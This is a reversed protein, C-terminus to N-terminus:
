RMWIPPGYVAVIDRDTRGSKARLDDDYYDDEEPTWELLEGDRMQYIYGYQM